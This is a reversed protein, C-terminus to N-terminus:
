ESPDRDSRFHMDVVLVCLTWEILSDTAPDYTNIAKLENNCTSRDNAKTRLVTIFDTRGLFKSLFRM